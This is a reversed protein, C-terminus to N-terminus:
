WGFVLRSGHDAVWGIGVGDEVTEDVVGVADIEGVNTTPKDGLTRRPM